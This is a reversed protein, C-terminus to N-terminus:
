RGSGREVAKLKLQKLKPVAEASRGTSRPGGPVPRRDRVLRWRTAGSVYAHGRRAAEVASVLEDAVDETAVYSWAGEPVDTRRLVASGEPAGIFVMPTDPRHKLIRRAAAPAGGGALGIAVVTVEPALV